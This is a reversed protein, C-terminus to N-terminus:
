SEKKCENELTVCVERITDGSDRSEIKSKFKFRNPKLVVTIIYSLFLCIVILAQVFDSM